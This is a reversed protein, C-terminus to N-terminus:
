KAEQIPEIEISEESQHDSTSHASDHHESNKEFSCDTLPNYESASHERQKNCIVKTICYYFSCTHGLPGCTALLAPLVLLSFIM